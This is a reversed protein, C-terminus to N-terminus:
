DHVLWPLGPALRNAVFRIYKKLVIRNPISSNRQVDTVNKCAGDVVFDDENIYIRYIAASTSYVSSTPSPSMSSMSSSQALIPIIPPEPPIDIQTPPPAQSVRGWHMAENILMGVPEDYVLHSKFYNIIKNIIMDIPDLSCHIAQLIYPRWWEEIMSLSEISERESEMAEYYNLGGRGTYRCKWVKGHYM